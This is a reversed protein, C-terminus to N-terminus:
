KEKKTQDFAANVNSSIFDIFFSAEKFSLAQLRAVSRPSLDTRWAALV